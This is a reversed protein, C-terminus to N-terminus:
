NGKPQEALVWGHLKNRDVKGTGNLPMEELLTIREFWLAIQEPNRERTQKLMSGLPM